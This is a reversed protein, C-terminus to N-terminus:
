QANPKNAPADAAPEQDSLIVTRPRGNTRLKGNKDFVMTTDPQTAIHLINGRQV